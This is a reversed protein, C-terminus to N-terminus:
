GRRDRSAALGAPKMVPAGSLLALAIADGARARVERDGPLILHGDGAGDARRSVVAGILPADLNELLDCLLLHTSPRHMVTARLASDIVAAEVASVNIPLPWGDQGDTLNVIPGNVHAEVGTVAALTTEPVPLASAVSVRRPVLGYRPLGNRWASEGADGPIATDADGMLDASVVIPVNAYLAIAVADTPAGLVNSGNSLNLSAILTRNPACDLECGLIHTDVAELLSIFLDHPLVYGVSHTARHEARLGNKAYTVSVAEVATARVTLFRGERRDMLVVVPERTSPSVRAGLVEWTAAPATARTERYRFTARTTSSSRDSRFPPTVGLLARAYAAAALSAYNRWLRTVHRDGYDSVGRITFWEVGEYFGANGIGKGEMEIALVDHASAIADRRRASRLSRDGSGILGSHVKPQGARHGSLSIDPHPIQRNSGDSAHLVDTSDPPRSFGPLIGSQATLLDEWPRSGVTEGAQLLRASRELLPSPPPFTRRSAPGDDSDRVSDYEAIGWRAVVIDGLRVHQDPRSPDPVGAAIGVMLVCRVSSFSRLLNSCASAAADNGTDGLMTLVVWHPRGSEASPVTGIIYYARDGDVHTLRPIEVFSRMAAFEEPLATVIGFTPRAGRYLEDRPLEEGKSIAEPSVTGDDACRRGLIELVVVVLRELNTDAYAGFLDTKQISRLTRGAGIERDPIECNDLRVPIIWPVTVPRKRIEEIALTLEENQYTKVRAQGATSFCAIFVLSDSTIAHRIRERWDQGPWLNATDRWVQIGATELVEQLRDVAASDERVYSVFAYGASGSEPSVVVLRRHSDLCRWRATLKKDNRM